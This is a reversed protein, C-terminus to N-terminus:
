QASLQSTTTSTITVTKKNRDFVRMFFTPVEMEASVTVENPSPMDVTFTFTAGPPLNKELYADALREAERQILRIEGYVDYPDYPDDKWADRCYSDLAALSASEVAAQLKLKNLVLFGGDLLLGAFAIMMPLCIALLIVAAGRNNTLHQKIM